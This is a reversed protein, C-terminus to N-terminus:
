RRAALMVTTAVTLAFAGIAALGIVFGEHDRAYSFVQHPHVVVVLLGLALAAGFALAPPTLSKRISHRGRPVAAPPRPREGELMSVAAIGVLTWCGAVLFGGFVDSPYHWGLTLFSYSVAVAFMAGLAAVAPRLRGPVALVTCLALSM